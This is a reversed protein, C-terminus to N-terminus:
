PAKGKGGPSPVFWYLGRGRPDTTLLYVEGREDEGFSLIPRAQDRIPRNAV